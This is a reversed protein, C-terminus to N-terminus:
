NKEGMERVEEGRLAAQEKEMAALRAKMAELEQLLILLSPPIHSSRPALANAHSRQRCPSPRQREETVRVAQEEDMADGGGGSSPPELGDVPATTPDDGAMTIKTHPLSVRYFFFSHLPALLSSPASM